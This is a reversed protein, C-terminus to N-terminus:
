VLNLIFCFIIGVKLLCMKHTKLSIINCLDDKVYYQHRFYLAYKKFRILLILM